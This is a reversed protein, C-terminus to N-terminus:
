ERCRNYMKLLMKLSDSQKKLTSFNQRTLRWTWNGLSGPFNMRAHGDLELFDQAPVIALFSISSFCLRIFRHVFSKESQVDLYNKAYDVAHPNASRLWGLITDNDHTGSYTVSFPTDFNHPLYASTGNDDFAFQLVKMGPLNAYRMLSHVEDGIMGLDEAILPLNGFRNKLVDFFAAGASPQWQGNRATKERADIEWFADFGRFHDLRVADYMKFHIAFRQMWYEYETSRLADWNYTPMGWYQGDDSFADPPCGGVFRLSLDENFSFVHPNVWCDCSDYPSYFPIDGIICIGKENAYSKLAFYQKFFLYQTFKYFSIEDAFREWLKTLTKEDRFKVAAEEEFWAKNHLKKLVCYLFYAELQYYTEGFKESLFLDIIESSNKKKYRVFAKRLVAEKTKYLRGYDCHADDGGDLESLDNKSLLKEARLYELDIFYPNGAFSSFTQYPSDGYGTPGLPLIQWYRFGAAKLFDVFAYAEAGFTGIGYKSPLSSIHLLVGASRSFDFM